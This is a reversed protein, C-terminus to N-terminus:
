CGPSEWPRDKGVERQPGFYGPTSGKLGKLGPLKRKLCPRTRSLKAITLGPSLSLVISYSPIILASYGISQYHYVIASYKPITNQSLVICYEASLRPIKFTEVGGWFPDASM